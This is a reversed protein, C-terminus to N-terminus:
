CYLNSIENSKEQLPFPSYFYVTPTRTVKLSPTLLQGSTVRLRIGLVWLKKYWSGWGRGRWVNPSSFLVFQDRFHNYTVVVVVPDCLWVSSIQLIWFNKTGNSKYLLELGLHMKNKYWAVIKNMWHINWRIGSAM